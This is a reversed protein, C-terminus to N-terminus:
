KYALTYCFLHYGANKRFDFETNKSNEKKKEKKIIKQNSQPTDTKLISKSYLFSQFLLRNMVDSDIARPYSLFIKTRAFNALKKSKVFRKKAM